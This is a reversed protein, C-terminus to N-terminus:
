LACATPAAQSCSGPRSPEMVTGCSAVAAQLRAAVVLRAGIGTCCGTRSTRCTVFLAPATQWPRQRSTTMTGRSPAIIM